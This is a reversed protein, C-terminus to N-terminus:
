GSRRSRLGSCPCRPLTSVNPASPFPISSDSVTSTSVPALTRNQIVLVPRSLTSCMVSLHDRGSPRTKISNLQQVYVSSRKLTPSRQASRMVSTINDLM